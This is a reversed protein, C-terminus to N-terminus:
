TRVKWRTVTFLELGRDQASALERPDADDKPDINISWAWGEGDHHAALTKQTAEEIDKAAITLRERRSV